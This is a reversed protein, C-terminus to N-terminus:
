GATYAAWIFGQPDNIMVAVELQVLRVVMSLLTFCYKQVLVPVPATLIQFDQSM